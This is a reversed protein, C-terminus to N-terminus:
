QAGWWGNVIEEAKNWDEMTNIDLSSETDMPYIAFPPMRYFRRLSFQKADFWYIAGNEKYVYNPLSNEWQRGMRFTPNHGMPEVMMSLEDNGFWHYGDIDRLVRTGSILCNAQKVPNAKAQSFYAFSETVQQYNRFPSTPQLLCVNDYVEGKLELDRLVDLLVEDTQVHDMALKESRRHIRLNDTQKFLQYKYITDVIEESNTSVIITDFVPNFSIQKEDLQAPVSPNSVFSFESTGAFVAAEVTWWLLPAGGLKKINKGPVGKSGSRAPIVCLNKM